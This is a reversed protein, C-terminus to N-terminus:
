QLACFCSTAISPDARVSAIKLRQEVLSMEDGGNRQALCKMLGTLSWVNDPHQGCRPIESDCGLDERYIREAEELNGQEFLLAGLAHRPPHMWAWPETYNLNDDLQVAHRLATFSADFHGRRYAIEGDLMADAVALIDTVKNSLFIAESPFASIAQQLAARACEAEDTEGLAAHAVGKGYCHMARSIPFLARPEPPVTALLDTWRGFRVLVHSKMSRYGDLISAMFPASREVLEASATGEIREAASIALAYRGIFMAAAIWLHLNHCRATTYFNEAGAYALYRDDAAVADVSLDLAKDYEGCLFYIHTPMHLLHGADPAIGRLADAARLAREPFPSMEMLHIYIHLVGPHFPVDGKMSGAIDAELLDCIEITDADPKPKGTELDWLQRPTRTIAAEAFLSRVDRDDPFSAQVERMAQTYECEWRYLADAATVEAAQYRSQLAGILAQEAPSCGESLYYARRAYAHTLKVTASLEAPSFRIWPRNYFPGSAFAVGWHAMACNPDVSLARHYCHVAEEHNFAYTWNLGKNFWYAADPEAATIDRWWTGLDFSRACRPSTDSIAPM